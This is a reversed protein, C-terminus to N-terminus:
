RKLLLLIFLVLALLFFGMTWRKQSAIKETNYVKKVTQVRITDSPCEANVLVREGPLYKIELKVRDKFLVTDKYLQLTDVLVREQTVILTDTREVIHPTKCSTLFIPLVAVWKLLKSYKGM